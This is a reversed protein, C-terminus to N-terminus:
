KGKHRHTKNIGDTETQKKMKKEYEQYIYEVGLAPFYGGGGALFTHQIHPFIDELKM